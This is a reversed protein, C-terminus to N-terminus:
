HMHSILYIGGGVVVIAPVAWLIIVPMKREEGFGQRRVFLPFGSDNRFRRKSCFQEIQRIVVFPFQLNAIARSFSPMFAFPRDSAGVFRLGRSQSSVTGAWHVHVKESGSRRPRARASQRCRLRASKRTTSFCFVQAVGPIIRGVEHIRSVPLEFRNRFQKIAATCPRELPRLEDM